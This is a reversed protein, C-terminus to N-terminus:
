PREDVATLEAVIVKHSNDPAVLNFITNAMFLFSHSDKADSCMGAVTLDLAGTGGYFPRFFAVSHHKCAHRVSPRSMM